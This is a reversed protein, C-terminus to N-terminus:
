NITELDSLLLKQEDLEAVEEAAQQALSIYAKMKAREGAVSEVRALAEYAYGLYFPPVDEDQSVDLCRQAYHRANEVQRLLTYIRALQWYGISLHKNTCDPRQSWHWMAAMSLRIMQEDDEPSRDTKDILDWARNFCLASFYRHAAKLDFDPKKTM